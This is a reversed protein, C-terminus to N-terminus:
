LADISKILSLWHGKLTESKALKEDRKFSKKLLNLHAYLLSSVDSSEERFSKVSECLTKIYVKQLNRRFVDPEEKKFIHLRFENIM